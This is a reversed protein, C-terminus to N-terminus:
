EDDEEKIQDYLESDILVLQGPLAFDIQEVAKWPGGIVNRKEDLIYWGEDM